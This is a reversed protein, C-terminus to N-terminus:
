KLVGRTTLRHRLGQRHNFWLRQLRLRQAVGFPRKSAKKGEQITSAEGRTTFPAPRFALGRDTRAVWHQIQVDVPYRMQQSMMLFAQAGGRSWMLATTTVPMYHAHFLPVGGQWVAQRVPSLHKKAPRGLNVVDWIALDKWAASLATLCAMSHPTLALDDEFVVGLEADTALFAEAAKRHSLFCGVEGPSLAVGMTPIAAQGLQPDCAKGDVAAIRNFPLGIEALCAQTQALRQTSRDLNIVFTAINDM